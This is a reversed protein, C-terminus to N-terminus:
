VPVLLAVDVRDAVLAAAAAPASERVLRRPATISGMFSLHRPAVEGIAGATALARLRELPFVVNVDAALPARDFADSRHHVSLDAPDLTSALTRWSTDGGRQDLDFPTDGSAVLGASTVLAVRAQSVPVRMVAPPSPAGSRWRYTALLLRYSLPLDDRRFSANM